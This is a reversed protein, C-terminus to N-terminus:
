LSLSFLDLTCEAPTFPFCSAEGEVGTGGPTVPETMWAFPLARLLGLTCVAEEKGESGLSM